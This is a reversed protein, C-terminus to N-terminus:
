QPSSRKDQPAALGRDIAAALGAMDFPKPLVEFGLRAAEQTHISYGSVLLIPLDPWRRRASTAVGFGDPGDPMVIDSILYDIGGQELMALAESGNVAQQVQFGQETLFAAAVSRVEDNDDVLLVRAANRSPLPPASSVDATSAPTVTGSAEPLFISVTTGRGQKSTIDALGGAAKAFGYVQSLGLGTGKGTGKTTFFPEFVHPLAEAPVGTGTDAISLLIGQRGSRDPFPAREIRIALIGGEPMADRANVAINLVALDLQIPDVSVKFVGPAIRLDIKITVPLSHRLMSLMARIREALDVVDAQSTEGRSFALLEATLQAGREAAKKIASINREAAPNGALKRELLEINGLMIMLLNNFDHAVGGTMRGLSEMRSARERLAIQQRASVIERRILWLLLATLLAAGVGAFGLVWLSRTFPANFLPTPISVHASWGTEPSKSFATIVPNGSLSAGEYVGETGTKRAAIADDAAKRGVNDPSRTSAAIVDDGDVLFARWSPDINAASLATALDELTVSVLLVFKVEKNADLVPVRLNVQREGSSLPGPGSVNGVVPKKTELVRSFGRAEGFDPLPTGLPVSTNLVQRSNRDLLIVRNWAPFDRQFDSLFSHFRQLDPPDARLARAVSLLQLLDFHRDFEHEVRELLRAADRIAQTRMLEQQNQLWLAGIGGALALVPLLAALILLL